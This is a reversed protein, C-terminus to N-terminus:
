LLHRSRPSALCHSYAGRLRCPCPPPRGPGGLACLPGPGCGWSPPQLQAWSPLAPTQEQSGTEHLPFDWSHGVQLRSHPSWTRAPGPSTDLSMVALEGTAGASLPLRSSGRTRSAARGWPNGGPTSLPDPTDPGTTM